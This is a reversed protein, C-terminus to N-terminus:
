VSIRLHEHVENISTISNQLELTSDFLTTRYPQYGLHKMVAARPLAQPCTCCIITVPKVSGPSSDWCDHAGPHYKQIMKLIGSRDRTSSLKSSMERVSQLVEKIGGALLLGDTMTSLLLCHMVM